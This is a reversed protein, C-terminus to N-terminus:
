RADRLVDSVLALEDAAGALCWDAAGAAIVGAGWGIAAEGSAEQETVFATPGTVELEISAYSLPANMVLNPFVLPNGAGRTLLRHLSLVTESLNGLASGLALARRAAATAPLDGADALALRCAALMLLSLRDMRRAPPASAWRRLDLAPATGLFPAGD